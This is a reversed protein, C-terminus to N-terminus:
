TAESQFTYPIFHLSRNNGGAPRPPLPARAPSGVKLSSPERGKWVMAGASRRRRRRREERRGERRAHRRQVPGRPPAPRCCRRRLKQGCRARRCGWSSCLGLRPAQLGPDARRTRSVAWSPQASRLKAGAGCAAPSPPTPSSASVCPRSRPPSLSRVQFTVRSDPGQVFHSITRHFGFMGLVWIAM